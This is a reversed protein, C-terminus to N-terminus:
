SKQQLTVALEIYHHVIVQSQALHGEAASTLALAPLKSCAMINQGM